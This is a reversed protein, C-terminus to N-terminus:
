STLPTPHVPYGVRLGAQPIGPPELVSALRDRLERVEIPHDILSVQLGERVATLVVRELAQGAALWAMPGDGGTALVAFLPAGEAALRQRLSDPGAVDHLWAGEAVAAAQLACVTEPTVPRAGFRRRDTRRCPIADLLDSAPPDGAGLVHIRAILRPDDPDPRASVAIDLGAHELALRLDFLASGCAITLERNSVCGHPDARLDIGGAFTELRWQAARHLPAAEQAFSVAVAVAGAIETELDLADVSM